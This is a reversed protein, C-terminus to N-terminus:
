GERSPELAKEPHLAGRGEPRAGGSWQHAAARAPGEERSARDAVGGAGAGSGNCSGGGGSAAGHARAAEPVAQQRDRSIPLALGALPRHRAGRGPLSPLRLLFAAPEQLRQLEAREEAEPVEEVDVEVDIVLLHTLPGSAIGHVQTPSRQQYSITIPQSLNRSFLQGTQTRVSTTKYSHTSERMLQQAFSSNTPAHSAWESISYNKEHKM